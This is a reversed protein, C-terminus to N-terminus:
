PWEKEYDLYYWRLARDKGITFSRNDDEGRTGKRAYEHIVRKTRKRTLVLYQFSEGKRIDILLNRNYLLKFFEDDQLDGKSGKLEEYSKNMLSNKFALGTTQRRVENLSVTKLLDPNNRVGTNAQKEIIGALLEALSIDAGSRTDLKGLFEIMELLEGDNIFVRKRVLPRRTLTKEWVYGIQFLQLGGSRRLEEVTIKLGRRAIERNILREMEPTLKTTFKEGRATKGAADEDEQWQGKKLRNLQEELTRARTLLRDYRVELAKEVSTGRNAVPDFYGATVRFDAEKFDKGLQKQKRARLRAGYKAVIQQMQKQFDSAAVSSDPKVVQVAYFEIPDARDLNAPVLRQLIAEVTYREMYKPDSKVRDPSASIDGCDGIVVVLKRARARFRAADIGEIIGRFVMEHPDNGDHVKHEQVARAIEEGSALVDRLPSTVVPGPKKPLGKKGRKKLPAVDNYFTVAVRVQRSPDKRAVKLIKRVTRAVVPFWTDMSETDDIVFLIDTHTVQNRVADLSDQLKKVQHADLLLNGAADCLGGIGGVKFLTGARPHRLKELVQLVPFRPAGPDLRRSVQYGLKADLAFDEEFIGKVSGDTLGKQAEEITAYIRGTTTRRPPSKPRPMGILPFPRDKPELTSEHDWELAERTNWIAVRHRPLWGVVVERVDEDRRSSFQPADGLLVYGDAEGYVFQTTYLRLPQDKGPASARPARRLMVEKLNTGLHKRTNVVLAKKMIDTEPDTQAQNTRVLYRGPVWGVYDKVKEDDESTVLLHFNQENVTAAVYFSQLFSLPAPPPVIKSTTNPLVHPQYGEYALWVVLPRRSRPLTVLRTPLKGDPHQVRPAARAGAPTLALAVLLLSLAPRM